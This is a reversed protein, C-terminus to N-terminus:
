KGGRMLLKIQQKEIGLDEGREKERRRLGELELCLESANMKQLNEERRRQRREERMREEEEYEWKRMAQREAEKRTAVEYFGTQIMFMEM